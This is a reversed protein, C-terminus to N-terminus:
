SMRPWRLSARQRLHAAADGQLLVEFGPHPLLPGDIQGHSGPAECRSCLCRSAAALRRPAARIKFMHATSSETLKTSVSSLKCVQMFQAHVSHASAMYRRRLWAASTSHPAWSTLHMMCPCQVVCAGHMTRCPSQMNCMCSACIRRMAMHVAALEGAGLPVGVRGGLPSTCWGGGGAHM